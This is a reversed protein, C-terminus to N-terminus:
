SGNGRRCGATSGGAGGRRNHLGRFLLVAFCWSNIAATTCPTAQEFTTRLRYVISIKYWPQRARDHGEVSQVPEPELMFGWVADTVFQRM